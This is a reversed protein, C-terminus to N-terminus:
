AIPLTHPIPKTYRVPPLLALNTKKYQRRM